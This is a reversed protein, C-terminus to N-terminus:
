RNLCNGCSGDQLHLRGRTRDWTMDRTQDQLQDASATLATNLTPCNGCFGDQLRTRNQIMEGIMNRTQNQLQDGVGAGTGQSLGAGKRVQSQNQKMVKSMDCGQSCIRNQLMQEEGNNQLQSSLQVQNAVQEQYANQVQNAVQEQCAIQQQFQQCNGQAGGSGQGQPGAAMAFAPVLILVLVACLAIKKIMDITEQNTPDLVDTDELGTEM